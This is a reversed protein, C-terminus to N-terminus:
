YTAGHSTYLLCINALQQSWGRIFGVAPNSLIPEIAEALEADTSMIWAVMCNNMMNQFEAFVLDYLAKVLEEESCTSDRICM